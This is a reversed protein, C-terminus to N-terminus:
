YFTRYIDILDIQNISNNLTGIDKIIKYSAYSTISFPTNFKGLIIISQRNRRTIRDTKNWTNQLSM